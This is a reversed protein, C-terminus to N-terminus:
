NLRESGLGHKKRELCGHEGRSSRSLDELSSCPGDFIEFRFCLHHLRATFADFFAKKNAVDKYIAEAAVKISANGHREGHKQQVNDQTQSLLVEGFEFFDKSVVSLWGGNGSQDAQSSCNRVCEQDIIAHPHM